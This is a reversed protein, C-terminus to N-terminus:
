NISIYELKKGNLEDLIFKDITYLELFKNWEKKVKKYDNIGLHTHHNKYDMINLWHENIVINLILSKSIMFEKYLEEVNDQEVEWVNFISTSELFESYENTIYIM